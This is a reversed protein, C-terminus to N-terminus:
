RRNLSQAARRAEAVFQRIKEPDQVGQTEVGSSVDVGWPQVERVARGVNEPTLGGALMFEFGAKSLQSAVGWDFSKGTGGQLGEVLRDLTAVHGRERLISLRYELGKLEESDLLNGPVHTIRIVPVPAEDCYEVTEKGCLQVMDVGSARVKERVEEIPQDAFLGALKPPNDSSAKVADVIRRAQEVAIRRRRNPVFVLGMFDVGADVATLADEVRRVGCIKVKLM